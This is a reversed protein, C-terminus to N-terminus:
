QTPMVLASKASTGAEPWRETAVKFRTFFRVGEEGYMHHEAFISSKWGGFSYLASPAPIPVNIGVMGAKVDLVFQRGLGGNQTFIVAGNGFEHRNIIAIAEDYNDVRMVAFVPGFIEERHITMGEKVHDFLTPGVFFGNPRGDPRYGRGDILLKAKDEEVGIRIYEEVNKQHVKSYLPGLDADPNEFGDVVLPQIKEKVLAVLKDATEDGVCVALPLAMCREGAAGFAAGVINNATFELDADPMVIAHNKAAGLAQVRKGNATGGKYVIEAVKSSGVFSIAVIDPHNIFREVVDKAGNVVQLVGDPLGAEKWLEAIRLALSPDAEAPKLVFTNGAALAIPAMWLSIMGPFNFPTIGACVGLPQRINYADIGSSLESSLHGKLHHPMGCAFEVVEIGRGMEAKADEFTKGQETSLITALEDLNKLLLERLKFVIQTRRIVPTKSWADFAQLAGAVAEDVQEINTMPCEAIQEGIAPNYIPTYESAKAPTVQGNIFNNVKKM